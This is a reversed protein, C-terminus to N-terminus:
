SAIRTIIKTHPVDVISHQQINMTDRTTAFQITNQLTVQIIIQISNITTTTISVQTQNKIKNILLNIYLECENDMQKTQM